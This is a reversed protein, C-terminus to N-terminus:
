YKRAFQFHMPDNPLQYFGHKQFIEAIAKQGESQKSSGMPHSDANIDVAIGWSHTSM